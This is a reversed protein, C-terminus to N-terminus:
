ETLDLSEYYDKDYQASFEAKQRSQGKEMYKEVEIEFDVINNGREDTIGSIIQCINYSINNIASLSECMDYRGCAGSRISFVEGDFQYPHTFQRMDMVIQSDEEYYKLVVTDIQKNWWYASQLQSDSYISSLTHDGHEQIFDTLLYNEEELVSIFSSKLGNVQANLLIIQKYLKSNKIIEDFNYLLLSQKEKQTTNFWVSKRCDHCMIENSISFM